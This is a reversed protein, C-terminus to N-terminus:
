HGCSTIYAKYAPDREARASVDAIRQFWATMWPKEAPMSGDAKPFRITQVPTTLQWTGASEPGPYPLPPPNRTAPPEAMRLDPILAARRDDPM